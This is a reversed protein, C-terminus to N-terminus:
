DKQKIKSIIVKTPRLDGHRACAWFNDYWLLDIGFGYLNREPSSVLSNLTSTLVYLASGIGQRSHSTPTSPPVRWNDLSTILMTTLPNRKAKIADMLADRMINETESCRSPIVEFDPRSSLQERTEQMSKLICEAAEIKDAHIAVDLPREVFDNDQFLCSAVQETHKRFIKALVRTDGLRAAMHLPFVGV